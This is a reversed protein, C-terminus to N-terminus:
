WDEKVSMLASRSVAARASFAATAVGAVFVAAALLALRPWPLVLEMSWYFSQPNVVFVLVASVMLGLVLGMLVGAAMWAATELTVIALVQARTLGLHALLGFEKRRALVQASLSAAVGVLGITVAVAQLYTTVAFSRDFIRLSIQRLEPTAAFELMAPDPMLARVSKQVTAVDTGPALWLALDNLRHDSSLRRYDDLAM